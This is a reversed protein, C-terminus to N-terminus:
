ERDRITLTATYIRGKFKRRLVKACENLTAGTTFVDDIILVSKGEPPNIVRYAGRVNLKRQAATLRKQKETERCKEFVKVFNTELQGAVQRALYETRSGDKEREAKKTDPVHTVAEPLIGKSILNQSILLAADAVAGEAGYKVNLVANRGIGVHEMVPFNRDFYPELSRCRGCIPSPFDARLEIGCKECTNGMVFPAEALCIGCFITRKVLVKGCSLCRPPFLLERLREKLKM